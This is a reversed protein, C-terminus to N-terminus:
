YSTCDYDIFRPDPTASPWDSVELCDLQLQESPRTPFAAGGDGCDLVGVMLAQDGLVDRVRCGSVRAMAFGAQDRLPGLRPAYQPNRRIAEALNGRVRVDFLAGDVAIRSVPSQRFHKTPAHCAGQLILLLVLYRLM